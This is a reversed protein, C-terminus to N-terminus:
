KGSKRLTEYIVDMIRTRINMDVLKKNEASPHVRNSLFVYVLGYKPDAWACTGTFGTHGFALPSAMRSTPSAKKTDTEPKDFGLGRRSAKGHKKTFDKITSEKLIRKGGYEGGNLLMQMIVAVDNANGFLGAHGSIGGLMAATPDHVTGNLLQKRFSSDWETPVIWDRNLNNLPNFQLVSLNLPKYVQEGLYTEFSQGSIREVIKRMLIFGIDSYIYEPHQKVETDIIQQWLIAEYDKHLYLGYAVPTSYNSDQQNAYLIPNQNGNVLTKKYFPVYPVLGAQHLL